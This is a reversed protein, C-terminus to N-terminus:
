AERTWGARVLRAVADELWARETRGEHSWLSWYVVLRFRVRDEATLQLALPPWRSFGREGPPGAFHGPASAAIPEGLQALHLSTLPEAARVSVALTRLSCWDLLHGDRQGPDEALWARVAPADLAPRQEIVPPAAVTSRFTVGLPLHSSALIRIPPEPPQPSPLGTDLERWCREVEVALPLTVPALATLAAEVQDLRATRAEPETLPAALNLWWGREDIRHSMDPSM